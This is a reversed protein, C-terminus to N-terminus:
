KRDDRKLVHRFILEINVTVWLFTTWTSYAMPVYSNRHIGCPQVVLSVQFIEFREGIFSFLTYFHFILHEVQHKIGKGCSSRSLSNWKRRNLSAVRIFVVLRHNVTLSGKWLLQDLQRTSSLQPIIYETSSLSWAQCVVFRCFKSYTLTQCCNYHKKICCVGWTRTGNSALSMQEFCLTQSCYSGQMLWWDTPHVYFSVGAAYAVSKAANCVTGLAIRAKASSSIVSHDAANHHHEPELFAM